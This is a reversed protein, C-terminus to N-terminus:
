VDLRQVFLADYTGRPKDSRFYENWGTREWFCEKGDLAFALLRYEPYHSELSRVVATGVGRGRHAVAVEIREVELRASGLDPVDVFLESIQTGRTLLVRAVETGEELVQVYWIDESLYHEDRWWDRREYEGATDFRPSWLGSGLAPPRLEVLMLVMAGMRVYALDEVMKMTEVAVTTVKAILDVIYRPRRARRV